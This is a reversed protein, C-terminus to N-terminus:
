LASIIRVIKYGTTIDFPIFDYARFNFLFLGIHASKSESLANRSRKAIGKSQTLCKTKLFIAQKVYPIETHPNVDHKMTTSKHELIILQKKLLFLIPKPSINSRTEIYIRINTQQFHFSKIVAHVFRDSEQGIRTRFNKRPM